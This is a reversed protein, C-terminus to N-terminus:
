PYGSLDQLVKLNRSFESPFYSQGKLCRGVMNLHSMSSKYIQEFDNEMLYMDELINRYNNVM